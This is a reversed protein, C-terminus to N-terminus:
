NGPILEKKRLHLDKPKAEAKPKHHVKPKEKQLEKLEEKQIEKAVEEKPKEVAMEEAKEVKIEEKAQEQKKEIGFLEVSVVGKEDKTCNVKIHHPINKIGHEWIKENLYKSIKINESKMHRRVFGKITYIAKKARRYSPAKQLEKRLPINYARELSKTQEAM